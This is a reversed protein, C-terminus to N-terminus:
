DSPFLKLTSVIQDIGLGREEGLYISAQHIHFPALLPHEQLYFPSDLDAMTVAPQSLAFHVAALLSVPGELMSGIMCEKHMKQSLQAIKIAEYIGGSKMLKINLMDATENKLLRRADELDFLSEDALIPVIGKQTLKAMDADDEPKFPQELCAINRTPIKHLFHLADTLTLAQNPDIRLKVEKTIANNIALMRRINEETDADLKIKLDKFGEQVARHAEAAMKEATDISITVDTDLSNHTAGLYRYLPLDAQKALLDYLAIDVCAKAESSANCRYLTQFIHLPDIEQDLLRPFIEEHLEHLLMENTTGTIATVACAEGYGTLGTDTIIKVLIDEIEEVRRLSTIFPKKLPIPLPTLEFGTIRM